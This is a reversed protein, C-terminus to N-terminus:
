LYDNSYNISKYEKNLKEGDKLKTNLLNWFNDQHGRVLSHCLEHYLLVKIYKPDYKAIIPSIEICEEIHNKRYLGLYGKLPKVTIKPIKIEKFDNEADYILKVIEEEVVKTYFNYLIKKYYRNTANIAKIIIEDDKVIVKDSNSKMCKLNYKKGQFHVFYIDKANIKSYLNIFQQNLVLKIDKDTAYEPVTIYVVDDKINFSYYEKKKNTRIVEYNIYKDKKIFREM